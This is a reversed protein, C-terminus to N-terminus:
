MKIEGSSELRVIEKTDDLEAVFVLEGGDLLTWIEEITEMQDILPGYAECRYSPIWCIDHEFTGKDFVRHGHLPKMYGVQKISQEKYYM